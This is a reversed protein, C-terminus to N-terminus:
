IAGLDSLAHSAPPGNPNQRSPSSAGVGVGSDGRMSTRIPRTSIRTAFGGIGAAKMERMERELEPKSVAPGFWWWRMMIRSDPPPADFSRRLDGLAGSARQAATLAASALLCLVLITSRPRM